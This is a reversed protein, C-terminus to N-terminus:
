QGLVRCVSSERQSRGAFTVGACGAKRVPIAVKYARWGRGGGCVAERGKRGIKKSAQQKVQRTKDTTSVQRKIMSGVLEVLVLFQCIAMPSETEETEGKLREKSTGVNWVCSACRLM